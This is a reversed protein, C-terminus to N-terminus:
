KIVDPIRKWTARMKLDEVDGISTQDPPFEPDTFKQGTEEHEPVLGVYDSKLV